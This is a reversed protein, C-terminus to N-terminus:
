KRGTTLIARRATELAETSGFIEVEYETDTSSQIYADDAGNQLAIDCVLSYAERPVKLRLSPSM